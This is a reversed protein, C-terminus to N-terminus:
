QLFVLFCHTAFYHESAGSSPLMSLNSLSHLFGQFVIIKFRLYKKIFKINKISSIKLANKNKINVMSYKKNLFSIFLDVSPNKAIEHNKIVGASKLSFVM